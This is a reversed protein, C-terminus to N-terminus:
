LNLDIIQINEPLKPNDSVKTFLTATGSFATPRPKGPDTNDLQVRLQGNATFEFITLAKKQEQSIIVDLHMPQPTPNISYGFEVAMPKQSNPSLIYLKGDPSFVFTLILESGPDKSEWQGIIQQAIPNTPQNTAPATPTPAPAPTTQALVAKNLTMSLAILLCNTLMTSAIAFRGFYPFIQPM